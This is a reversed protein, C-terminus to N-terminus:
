PAVVPAMSRVEYIRAGEIGTLAVRLGCALSAGRIDLRDQRQRDSAHAGMDLRGDGMLTFPYLTEPRRFDGIRGFAPFPGSNLGAGDIALDIMIQVAEATMHDTGVPVLVIRMMESM